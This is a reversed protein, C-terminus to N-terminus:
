GNLIRKLPILLTFQTRSGIQSEIDLKFDHEDIVKKVYALGLGPDPSNLASVPTYLKKLQQTNFGHGNYSFSLQLGDPQNRGGLVIRSEDAAERICHNMIVSLARSFRGYDAEIEPSSWDFQVDVDIGRQNLVETNQGDLLERILDTLNFRTMKLELPKIYEVIESFMTDLRKVAQLIESYIESQTESDAFTMQMYQVNTSIGTLPNRVEHSLARIFENLDGLVGVSDKLSEFTESEPPDELRVIIGDAGNMRQPKFSLRTSIHMGSRRLLTLDVPNTEGSLLTEKWIQEAEDRRDVPVLDSLRMNKLMDLPYGTKTEASANGYSIKGSAVDFWLFADSIQNLLMERIRNTDDPIPSVVRPEDKAQLQISNIKLLINIWAILNSGPTPITYIEGPGLSLAKVEPYAQDQSATLLLVPVYRKESEEHIRSCLEFGDIQPLRVDVVVMDVNESNIRNLAEASDAAIVLESDINRSILRTLYHASEPSGEVLIIRYM